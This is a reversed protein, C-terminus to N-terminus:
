STLDWRVGVFTNHEIEDPHHFSGPQPEGNKVLGNASQAFGILVWRGGLMRISGGWVEHRDIVTPGENGPEVHKSYQRVEHSPLTDTDSNTPYVDVWTKHKRGNEGKKGSALSVDTDTWRYGNPDLVSLTATAFNM